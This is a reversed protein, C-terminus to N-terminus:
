IYDRITVHLTAFIDKLAERSFLIGAFNEPWRRGVSEQRLFVSLCHCVCSFM